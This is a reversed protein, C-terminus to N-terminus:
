QIPDCSSNSWLVTTSKVTKQLCWFHKVWPWEPVDYLKSVAPFGSRTDFRYTCFGLTCSEAWLTQVSPGLLLAQLAMSIVCLVFRCSQLFWLCRRSSWLSFSFFPLPLLLPLALSLSLSFFLVPFSFSSPCFSISSIWWPFLDWWDRVSLTILLHFFTVPGTVKQM